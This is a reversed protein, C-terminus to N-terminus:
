MFACAGIHTIGDGLEIQVIESRKITSDTLWPAKTGESAYVSVYDTMEGTGNITLKYTSNELEVLNYTLGDETSVSTDAADVDTSVTAFALATVIFAIALVSLIDKNM